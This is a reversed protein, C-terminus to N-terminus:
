EALKMVRLIPFGTREDVLYLRNKRDVWLLHVEVADNVEAFETRDHMFGQIRGAKQLTGDPSFLELQLQRIGDEDESVSLHVIRGDNFRGVGHSASRYRAGIGDSSFLNFPNESSEVVEHTPHGPERGELRDLTWTGKDTPIYRYLTGRYLLPALVLTSAGPAVHSGGFFFTTRVIHQSFKDDSLKWEEPTGFAARKEFRNSYVHLHPENPFIEGSPAKYVRAPQYFLVFRGDQLGYMFEPSLYHEEPNLVTKIRDTNPLPLSDITEFPPFRTFRDLQRDFVVLRGESDLAIAQIDKFEGPGEGSRGLAGLFEGDPSFVRVRSGPGQGVGGRGEAIYIRGETDTRIHSPDSFLYERPASEEDGIALVEEFKFQVEPKVQAVSDHIIFGFLLVLLSLFRVLLYFVWM